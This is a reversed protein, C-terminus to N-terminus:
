AHIPQSFTRKGKMAGMEPLSAEERDPHTTALRSSHSNNAQYHTPTTQTVFTYLIAELASTHLKPASIQCFQPYPLNLAHM